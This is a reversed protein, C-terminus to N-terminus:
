QGTGKWGPRKTAHVPVTADKWGDHVDDSRLRRVVRRFLSSM